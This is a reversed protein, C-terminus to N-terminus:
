PIGLVRFPQCHIRWVGVPGHGMDRQFVFAGTPADSPVFRVGTGRHVHVVDPDDNPVMEGQQTVDRVHWGGISAGIEGLIVDLIGSWSLYRSGLISNKNKV